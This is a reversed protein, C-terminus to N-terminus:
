NVSAIQAQEKPAQNWFNRGAVNKSWKTNRYTSGLKAKVANDEEYTFVHSLYVQLSAIASDTKNDAPQLQYRIGLIGDNDQAMKAYKLLDEYTYERRFSGSKDNWLDFYGVPSAINRMQEEADTKVQDIEKNKTAIVKDKQKVTAELEAIRKDKADM